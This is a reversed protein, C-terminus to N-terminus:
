HRIWSQDKLRAGYVEIVKGGLISGIKGCFELDYGNSLGYLFGAAYLDGAGTTDKLDAKIGPVVISRLGEQIISGEKGIKVVATDCYEGIIRAAKEPDEGTFSRAEEENAFVINVYNKVIDLLFDKNADVTTFSAM